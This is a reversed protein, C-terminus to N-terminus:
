KKKGKYEQFQPANNELVERRSKSVLWGDDTKSLEVRYIGIEKMYWHDGGPTLLPVTQIIEYKYTARAKNGEVELIDPAYYKFKFKYIDFSTRTIAIKKFEERGNVIVGGGM